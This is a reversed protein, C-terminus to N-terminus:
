LNIMDYHLLCSLFKKIREFHKDEFEVDLVSIFIIKLTNYAIKKFLNNLDKKQLLGKHTTDFSTGVM